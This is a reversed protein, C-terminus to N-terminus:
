LAGGGPAQGQFLHVGARQGLLQAVADRTQKRRVQSFSGGRNVWRLHNCHFCKRCSRPTSIAAGATKERPGRASGTEDPAKADTCRAIPAFWTTTWAVSPM